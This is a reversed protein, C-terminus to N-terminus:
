RTEIRWVYALQESADPPLTLTLGADSQRFAISASSGLLTVRKVPYDSRVSTITVEGAPRAMEIAYLVGDNVTFRFDNATYPKAKSEAFTGSATETPGEGFIVWPRSGYIADGNVKLWAGMKLLTDKAGDPIRGDAHPGVNLLLNGNKSVVDALLHILQAPSKYTDNEIYGWSKDSISTCTQWVDPRIGPAQGREIDLVGAGDAFEGLKYNVIASGDKKAARNYYWALFKPLTNRFSPQGIWWDFYILDPDYRAALEAQRALWDDLWAQSVYTYDGFLDEDGKGAMRDQAPGYLGANAPDSVDSPFKRGEDFFWDHEARHSSLAFHLGQNRVAQSIEGLLDRKPGMKVATYDSLRSDYMSFGDHHEAVPVVYRAGAESFLKAWAGADFAEAKFLPIFDKYGFQTQPGYTKIHHEYAASGKIYMNRSYWEGGFAPISYLGWHIFIGFKADAYWKPTQYAQLAAWDPRFAGDFGGADVEALWRKREAAYKQTAKLWQRDREVPTTNDNSAAQTVTPLGAAVVVGLAGRLLSRRSTPYPDFPSM